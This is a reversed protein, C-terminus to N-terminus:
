HINTNDATKKHVQLTQVESTRVSTHRTDGATWPCKDTIKSCNASNGRIKNSTKLKLLKSNKNPTGKRTTQTHETDSATCLAPCAQPSSHPKVTPLLTSFSMRFHVLGLSGSPRDTHNTPTPLGGDSRRARRKSPVETPSAASVPGRTFNNTTKGSLSEAKTQSTTFRRSTSTPTTGSKYGPDQPHRSHSLYRYNNTCIAKGATRCFVPIEAM